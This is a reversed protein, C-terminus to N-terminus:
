GYQVARNWRLGKPRGLSEPCNVLTGSEGDLSHRVAQSSLNKPFTVPAEQECDQQKDPQAEASGAEHKGHHDLQKKGIVATKSSSPKPTITPITLPQDSKSRAGPIRKGEYDEFRM